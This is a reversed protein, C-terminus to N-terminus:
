GSRSGILARYSPEYELVHRFLGLSLPACALAGAGANSREFIQRIEELGSLLLDEKDYFHTYFTSRGVNARDLIDQVTISEYGREAMLALLADRLLKRTRRVRRDTAAPGPTRKEM